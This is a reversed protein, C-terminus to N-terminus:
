DLIKTNELNQPQAVLIEKNLDPKSCLEGVSRLREETIGLLKAYVDFYTDPFLYSDVYMYNGSDKEFFNRIQLKIKKDMQSYKGQLFLNWDGELDSFDFTYLATDEDIVLYDTLRHHKLLVNKDFKLFDPDKRIHYTAILKMDEPVYHTDWGTYTQIPVVSTGRKIDLLPYLFIKSKQFYKTYLKTPNM